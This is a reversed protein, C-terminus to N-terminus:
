QLMGTRVVFFFATQKMNYNMLLFAEKIYKVPFFCAPTLLDNKWCWVSMHELIVISMVHFTQDNHNDDRYLRSAAIVSLLTYVRKISQM